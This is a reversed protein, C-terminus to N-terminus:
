RYLYLWYGAPVISVALTAGRAILRTQELGLIPVVLDNNLFVLAFITVVVAIFTSLIARERLVRIGPDEVHLRWLRITVFINLPVAFGVVAYALFNALTM